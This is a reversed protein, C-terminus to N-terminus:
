TNHHLSAFLKRSRHDATASVAAPLTGKGRGQHGIVEKEQVVWLSALIRTERLESRGKGNRGEHHAVRRLVAGGGGM